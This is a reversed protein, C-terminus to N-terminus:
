TRAPGQGDAGYRVDLERYAEIVAATRDALEQGAGPPAEADDAGTTMSLAAPHATAGLATAATLHAANRHVTTLHAITQQADRAAQGVRQERILNEGATAAASIAAIHRNADAGTERWLSEIRERQAMLAAVAPSDAPLDRHDVVTLEARLRRIQQRRALVGALDHLARTLLREADDADIMHRLAPWTRQLRKAVAFTRAFAEREERAYLVHATDARAGDPLALVGVAAARAQGYAIGGLLLLAGLSSAWWDVGTSALVASLLVLGLAIQSLARIRQDRTRGSPTAPSVETISGWRRRVARGTRMKLPGPDVVTKEADTGIHLRSAASGLTVGRRRPNDSTM